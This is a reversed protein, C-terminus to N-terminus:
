RPNTSKWSEPCGDVMMEGSGEPKLHTPSNRDYICWGRM